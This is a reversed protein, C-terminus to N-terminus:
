CLVHKGAAAAALTWDVHLSNPLPVYVADVDERALLAEYSDVAHPVDWERAYSEARTRDRSAVAVITSREAARMAPILRRNIRATGLLGWRVSGM